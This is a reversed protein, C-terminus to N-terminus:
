CAHPFVNVEIDVCKNAIESTASPHEVVGSFCVTGRWGQLFCLTRSQGCPLSTQCYISDQGPVLEAWQPLPPLPLKQGGRTSVCVCVCVCVCVGNACHVSQHVLKSAQM